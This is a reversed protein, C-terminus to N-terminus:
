NFKFLKEDQKYVKKLNHSREGANRATPEKVLFPKKEKLLGVRCSNSVKWRSLIRSDVETPFFVM